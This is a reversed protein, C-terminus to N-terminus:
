RVLFVCNDTKMREGTVNIKVELCRNQTVPVTSRKTVVGSKVTKPIVAGTTDSEFDINSHWYQKSEATDSARHVQVQLFDRVMELWDFILFVRLNNLVM